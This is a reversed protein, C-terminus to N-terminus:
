VYPTTPLTLHTYSVPRNIRIKTTCVTRLFLYILTRNKCEAHIKQNNDDLYVLCIILERSRFVSHRFFRRKLFFTLELKSISLENGLFPNYSSLYVDFYQFSLLFASALMSISIPISKYCVKQRLLHPSNKRNENNQKGSHKHGEFTM